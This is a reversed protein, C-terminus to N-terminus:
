RPLLQVFFAVSNQVMISANNWLSCVLNVYSLICHPPTFTPWSSDNIFRQYTALLSEITDTLVNLFTNQRLLMNRHKSSSWIRRESSVQLEFLELQLQSVLSLKHLTFKSQVLQLLKEGSKYTTVIFPNVNLDVSPLSAATGKFRGWGILM